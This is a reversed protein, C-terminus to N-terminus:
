LRRRRRWMKRARREGQTTVTSLTVASIAIERGRRRALSNPLSRTRPQAQVKLRRSDLSCIGASMPSLRMRVRPAAVAAVIGDSTLLDQLAFICCGRGFRRGGTRRAPNTKTERDRTFRRPLAKQRSKQKKAFSEIM